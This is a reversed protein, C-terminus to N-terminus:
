DDDVENFVAEPHNTPTKKQRWTVKRRGTVEPTYFNSFSEPQMNGTLVSQTIIIRPSM